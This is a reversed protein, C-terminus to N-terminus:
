FSNCVAVATLSQTSTLTNSATVQWGNGSKSSNTVVLGPATNYGGGSVIQNNPCDATVTGSANASVDAQKTVSTSNANAGDYCVAFVNLTQTTSVTNQASASWGNANSVNAFVPLQANSGFGGGTLTSGSPCATTASASVSPPVNSQGFVQATAGSINSVCIALAILQHSATSNNKAIVQWANGQMASGTITLNVDGGFGGGTVKTGSPCTAAVQGTDNRNVTVQRLAQTSSPPVSTNTPKPTPPVPTNTPPVSTPTNTPPVRTLTSQPTPSTPIPTPTATVVIVIPTPSPPPPSPTNTPTSTSTPTPIPTANAQATVQIVTSEGTVNNRNVARAQLSYSGDATPRWKLSPAFSQLGQANPSSESAVQAGNVFLEVRIVGNTDSASVQVPVDQNTPVTAGQQPSKILVQPGAGAALPGGTNRTFFTALAFAAVCILVITALVGAIIVFKQQQSM